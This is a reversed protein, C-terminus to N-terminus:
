SQLARLVLREWRRWESVEPLQELTLTSTSEAWKVFEEIREQERLELFIKSRSLCAMLQDHIESRKEALAHKRSAITELEDGSGSFNAEYKSIEILRRWSTTYADLLEAAEESISLKREAATKKAVYRDQWRPFVIIAFLGGLLISISAPAWESLAITLPSFEDLSNYWWDM